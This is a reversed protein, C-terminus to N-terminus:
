EQLSSFWSYYFNFCYSCSVGFNQCTIKQMLFEVILSLKVLPLLLIKFGMLNKKLLMEEKHEEEIISDMIIFFM